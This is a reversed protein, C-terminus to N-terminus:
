SRRLALDFYGWHNLALAVVDHGENALENAVAMVGYPIAEAFSWLTYDNFFLVGGPRVKSVAVRADKLAGAYSHDGDIYIWDFHDDPLRLLNQSSDGAHLVVRADGAVDGSILATNMEFLHLEKVPLESLMFRAFNGHQVGIEAGREGTALARMMVHRDSFLRGHAFADDRLRPAPKELLFDAPQGTGQRYDFLAQRFAAHAAAVQQHLREENPRGTEFSLM